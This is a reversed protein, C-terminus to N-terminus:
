YDGATEVMEVDFVAVKVKSPVKLLINGHDNMFVYQVSNLLPQVRPFAELDPMPGIVIAADQYPRVAQLLPSLGGYKLAFVKVPRKWQEMNGQADSFEFKELRDYESGQSADVDFAMIGGRSGERECCRGLVAANEFAVDIDRSCYFGPGFEADTHRLRMGDQVISEVSTTDTGHYFRVHNEPVPGFQAAFAGILVAKEENSIEDYKNNQIDFNTEYYRARTGNQFAYTPNGSTMDDLFESSDSPSAMKQVMIKALTQVPLGPLLSPRDAYQFLFKTAKTEEVRLSVLFDRPSMVDRGPYPKSLRNMAQGFISYGPVPGQGKPWLTGGFMANIKVDCPHWPYPKNAKKSGMNEKSMEISGSLKKEMKSSQRINHNAAAGFNKKATTIATLEASFSFM